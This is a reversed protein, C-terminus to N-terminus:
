QFLRERRRLTIDSEDGLEATLRLRRPRVVEAVVEAGDVWAQPYNCWDTPVEVEFTLEKRTVREPLNEFAVRYRQQTPSEEEVTIVAHRRCLHYFVIEEPVACWVEDGGESLITEFRQRLQAESCDKNIHIPEEIPCHCYDIIWGSGARAADINRFRDHRSFLPGHMEHVLPTRELWYNEDEPLNVGDSVSMAGLYGLDRCALLVHGSMNRNSNPACYLTIPAEIAQELGDRAVRIEQDVMEPTIFLHSWSHNGVGWGRSLLDKLQDAGMHRMGDYSSGELNRIEGLQGVLVEVHGPIGFEEHYPIVFRELDVLAEDYTISYVWRKGHKWNSVSILPKTIPHSSM